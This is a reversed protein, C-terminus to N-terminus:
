LSQLRCQKRLLMWLLCPTKTISCFFFLFQLFDSHSSGGFCMSRLCMTDQLHQGPTSNVHRFVWGFVLTFKKWSLFSFSFITKATTNKNNNQCIWKWYKSGHLGTFTFTRWQQVGENHEHSNTSLHPRKMYLQTKWFPRPFIQKAESDTCSIEM